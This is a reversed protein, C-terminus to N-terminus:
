LIHGQMVITSEGDFEGPEIGFGEVVIEVVGLM